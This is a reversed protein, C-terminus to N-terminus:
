KNILLLWKELWQTHLAGVSVINKQYQIKSHECYKQKLYNVSLHQQFNVLLHQDFLLALAM